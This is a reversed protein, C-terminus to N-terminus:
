FHIGEVVESKISNELAKFGDLFDIFIAHKFMNFMWCAVSIIVPCVKIKILKTQSQVQGATILPM